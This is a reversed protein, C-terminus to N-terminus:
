LYKQNTTFMLLDAFMILETVDDEINKEDFM